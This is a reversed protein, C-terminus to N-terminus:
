VQQRQQRAHVHRGINGVLGLMQSTINSIYPQRTTSRATPAAAKGTLSYRVLRPFTQMTGAMILTLNLSAPHPPPRWPPQPQVQHPRLHQQQLQQSM